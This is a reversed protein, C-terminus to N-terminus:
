SKPMQLWELVNLFAQAWRQMDGKALQAGDWQVTLRATEADMMGCQWIVGRDTHGEVQIPELEASAIRGAEGRWNPQWNFLQRTAETVVERDPEHLQSLVDLMPAQSYLTLRQQESEVRALLNGISEAADVRIRNVVM